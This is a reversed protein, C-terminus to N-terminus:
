ALKNRILAVDASRSDQSVDTYILNIIRQHGNAGPRAASYEVLRKNADRSLGVPSFGDRTLTWSLLFLDCPVDNDEPDQLRCIGDFLGFKPFQGVPLSEGNRHASSPRTRANTTDPDDATGTAMRDFDPTHSYIDFVTLDGKQPDPAYWDRYNRIGKNRPKSRDFDLYTQIHDDDDKNDVVILVAGAKPAILDALPTRGLRQDLNRTVLWPALGRDQDRIMEITKDIASTGPDDDKRDFREDFNLFHSIKLIVLENHDQMFRRVDDLVDQFDVGITISHHIKIKGGSVALRLDFWRVGVSLQGFIHLTQTQLGILREYQAADHSAPLVLQNLTKSRLTRFNDGIWNARDFILSATGFLSQRTESQHVHVAVKENATVHPQEGLDFQYSPNNGGLFAQWNISGGDDSIRGVRQYIKKELEGQHVEYVRNDSTIAVSPHTGEDYRERPQWTISPPPGAGFQGTRSFLENGKQFVLVVRGADNMSVSPNSGNEPNQSNAQLIAHSDDWTVTGAKVKGLRYFLNGESVHVELVVGHINLALSPDSSSPNQNPFETETATNLSRAALSRVSYYLKGGRDHAEIVLNDDTLVVSPHSGTAYRFPQMNVFNLSVDSVDAILFYLNDETDSEGRHVEVCRNHGNITICPQTGDDYQQEPSIGFNVSKPM